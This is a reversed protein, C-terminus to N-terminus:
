LIELEHCDSSAFINNAAMPSGLIAQVRAYNNALFAPVVFSVTIGGPPLIAPGLLQPGGNYVVVSGFQNVHVYPFGIPSVPAPAGFATVQVVLLPPMNNFTGLPSWFHFSATDGGYVTKSGSTPNGGGNILSTMVFDEGSGSLLTSFEDVGIDVLAGQVRPEGDYDISALGPASLLGENICPSDSLLHFDNVAPDAFRPDADFNGSSTAIGTVNCNSFSVNGGFSEDGLGALGFNGFLAGGGLGVSNGRIISNFVSVGAGSKGYIGGGSGGAGGLLFGYGGVGAANGTILCNTVTINGAECAIGGGSGGTQVASGYGQGDGARCGRIICNSITPSSYYASIGGGDGEIPAKGGTITFGEVVATPGEGAHFWFVRGQDGADITTAAAGSTSRLTVNRGMFDLNFENYTGPGVLITDGSVAFYLAMGITPQDGPVHITSQSFVSVAFLSLILLIRNPM